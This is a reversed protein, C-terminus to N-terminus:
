GCNVLAWLLTVCTTSCFSISAYCCMVLWQIYHYKQNIECCNINHLVEKRSYSYRVNTYIYIHMM